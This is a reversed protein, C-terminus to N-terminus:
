ELGMCGVFGSVLDSEARGTVIEDVDAFGVMEPEERRVNKGDEPHLGLYQVLFVRMILNWRRLTPLHLASADDGLTHWVRPFPEAIVHLVSVGRKLFPVHDDGMYGIAREGASRPKFFSERGLGAGGGGAGGEGGIINASLLADEASILSDFLWATDPFYSRIQPHPSGLLDLLVLHEILSLPTTPAGPRMFRRKNLMSPALGTSEWNEALHRAGYISDDDTWDHFAEEGDFFILQLTTEAADLDETPPLTDALVRADRATLLPDLTQALDLMIACPAASDTAGLFQNEPYSSFFKSDFHAAVVLRRPAEPDKTAIVNTFPRAGVPTSANFSDLEITWGLKDLTQIIYNRVFTNNDTGPARPILIKTLHSVPNTSDLHRSPDPQESLLKLDDASLATFDREGLTAKGLAYSACSFAWLWSSLLVM